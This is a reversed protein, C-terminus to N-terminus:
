KLARIWSAGAAASLERGPAWGAATRVLVSVGAPKPLFYVDSAFAAQAAQFVALLEAEM